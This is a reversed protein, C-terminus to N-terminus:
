TAVSTWLGPLAACTLRGMFVDQAHRRRQSHQRRKLRSRKQWSLQICRCRVVGRLTARAEGTNRARNSRWFTLGKCKAVIGIGFCLGKPLIGYPHGSVEIVDFHKAVSRVLAAYDFGKHTLEVREVRDMRGLTANILESFSYYEADNFFRKVLWKGLFILGKENPVTIFLYGNLHRAIMGLYSDVMAPPVHELTEMTVAMDFVDSDSLHMEEPSTAKCFSM